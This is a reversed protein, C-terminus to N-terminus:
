KADGPLEPLPMWHTVNGNTLYPEGTEYDTWSASWCGDGEIRGIVVGYEGCTLVEIYEEPLRDWVAIWDSKTM